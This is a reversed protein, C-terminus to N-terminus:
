TLRFEIHVTARFDVAKGNSQAPKFKINEAARIASEDLGHGLGKVIRLVRVSGSACFQVELSVNGELRLNRAEATYAPTPKSIVELPVDIREVLTVPKAAAPTAALADGFGAPQVPPTTVTPRSKLRADGAGFGTNAVVRAAATQSSPAAGSGFGTDAIVTGLPRDTGPRAPASDLGVVAVEKTRQAPVASGQAIPADFGTRDVQRNVNMTRGPTDSTGFTGVTVHPTPKLIDTPRSKLRADITTDPKVPSVPEAPIFPADQREFVAVPMPVYAPDQEKLGPTRDRREIVPLVMPEAPMAVPASLAIYTLASKMFKPTQTPATQAILIATAGFALHVGVSTVGGGISRGRRGVRRRNAHEFMKRAQSDSVSECNQLSANRLEMCGYM